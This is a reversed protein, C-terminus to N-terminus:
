ECIVKESERLSENAKEQVLKFVLNTLSLSEYCNSNGDESKDYYSVGNTTNDLLYYTDSDDSFEISFYIITRKNAQSEEISPLIPLVTHQAPAPSSESYEFKDALTAASYAAFGTAIDDTVEQTSTVQEAQGFIDIAWSLSVLEDDVTKVNEDTQEGWSELSFSQVDGGTIVIAYTLKHAPWLHNIMTPNDADSLPDGQDDVVVGNDFLIPEFVANSAAVEYGSYCNALTNYNGDKTTSQDIEFHHLYYLDFNVGDPAKVSISAGTATVTDNSAFWAYTATFVSFLSFIASLTAGVIKVRKRTKSENRRM